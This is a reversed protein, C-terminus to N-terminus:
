GALVAIDRWGYAREPLPVGGITITADRVYKGGLAEYFRCAINDSLVWVLLSHYGRTHLARALSRTLQTGIGQRTYAPDLYIAYLEADYIPDGTREKGGMVFGVVQGNDQEAVLTISDADPQVRLKWREEHDAYSLSDLMADAVIGRYAALWSDVNIRAIAPVDAQTAPRILM